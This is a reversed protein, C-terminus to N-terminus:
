KIFKNIIGNLMDPQKIVVEEDGKRFWSVAHLREGEFTQRGHLLRYNDILLVDGPAMALNQIHTNSVENIHDLMEGPIKSLDGFYVDTMGVEPVSCPRRDRLYRAHNHINCFWVPMGTEPHRNVPSQAHEIAQLRDPKGDAGYMMDLDMDFKPAVAAAVLSKVGEKANEKLPGLVSLFDMDLNSVSIRVQRDYITQLVDARLDRFIKAGDAIFFEGGAITAPSFCVFAGYTATKKFTSENHLGIYHKALSAKNVEEYVGDKESLFSRLGSSHIPDLCPALGLTEWVKRFGEPDKSMDFGKFLVAGNKAVHALIEEKREAFYELGKGNAAADAEITMLIEPIGEAKYKAQEAAVDMGTNWKTAPCDPLQGKISNPSLPTLTSTMRLRPAAAARPVGVKGLVRSRTGMSGPMAPSPMFAESVGALGIAVGAVMASKSMSSHAKNRRGSCM